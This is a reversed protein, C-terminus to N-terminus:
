PIEIGSFAQILRLSRFVQCIALNELNVEAEIDGFRQDTIVRRIFSVFEQLENIEAGDSLLIPTSSIESCGLGKCKSGALSGIKGSLAM